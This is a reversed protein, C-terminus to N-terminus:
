ERQRVSPFQYSSASTIREVFYWIGIISGQFQGSGFDAHLGTTSGIFNIIADSNADVPLASIGQNWANAAPFPRFGNLSAGQGTGM